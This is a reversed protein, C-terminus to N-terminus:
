GCVSLQFSFTWFARWGAGVGILPAVPASHCQGLPRQLCRWSEPLLAHSLDWLRSKNPTRNEHQPDSTLVHSCILKLGEAKQESVSLLDGGLGRVPAKPPGPAGQKEMWTVQSNAQGGSAQAPGRGGPRRRPRGPGPHGQGSGGLPQIIREDLTCSPAGPGQQRPGTGRM